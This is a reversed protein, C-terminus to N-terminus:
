GKTFLKLNTFDKAMVVKRYYFLMNLDIIESIIRSAIASPIPSLVFSLFLSAIFGAIFSVVLDSISGVLPLSNDGLQIFM